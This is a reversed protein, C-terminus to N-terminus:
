AMLSDLFPLPLCGAFSTRSVALHKSKQKDLGFDFGIIENNVEVEDGTLLVSGSVKEDMKVNEENKVVYNDIVEASVNFPILLLFLLCLKKKM